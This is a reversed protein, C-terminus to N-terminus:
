AGRGVRRIAYPNGTDVIPEASARGTRMGKLEQAAGASLQQRRAQEALAADTLQNARKSAKQGELFSLVGLIADPNKLAWQGVAKLGGTAAQGVDGWSFQSTMPNASPMQPMGGGVVPINPGGPQMPPLGRIAALQEPTLQQGSAGRDWIDQFGPM